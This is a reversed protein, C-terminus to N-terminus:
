AGAAILEVFGEPEVTAGVNENALAPPAIAVLVVVLGGLLAWYWHRGYRFMVGAVRFTTTGAGDDQEGCWMAVGWRRLKCAGLTDHMPCATFAGARAYKKLPETMQAGERCSRSRSDPPLPSSRLM